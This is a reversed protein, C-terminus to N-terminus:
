DGLEIQDEDLSIRATTGAIDLLLLVRDKGSRAQFVATLGEMAGGRITVKQGSKLEETPIDIVGSENARDQLVRILSEPVRATQSGFRVMGSVGLTSRIPGWDDVGTELNIFLYRPFMPEIGTLKRGARRRICNVVPLYTSYGQRELNRIATNEMKPKTYVLYWASSM